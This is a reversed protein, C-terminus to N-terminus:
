GSILVTSQLPGSSRRVPLTRGDECDLPNVGSELWSPKWGPRLRPRLEYGEDKLMEHRDRWKEEDPTLEALVLGVEEPTAHYNERLTAALISAATKPPM